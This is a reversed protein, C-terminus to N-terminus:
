QKYFLKDGGTPKSIFNFGYSQILEDLEEFTHGMKLLHNEYEVFLYIDHANTLFEKMGQLVNYEYGQVDIKIFGLNEYEPHFKIWEDFKQCIADEARYVKHSMNAIAADVSFSANDECEPIYITKVDHKDSLANFYIELNENPINNDERSKVLNNWTTKVPEFAIVKYGLMTAPICFLGNNAGVDLVLKNKDVKKLLDLMVCYDHYLKKRPQGKYIRNWYDPITLTFSFDDYEYIFKGTTENM